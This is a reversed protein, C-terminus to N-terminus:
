WTGPISQVCFLYKAREAYNYSQFLIEFIKNQIKSIYTDLNHLAIVTSSAAPWSAPLSGLYRSKPAVGAEYYRM